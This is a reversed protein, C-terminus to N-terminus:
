NLSAPLPRKAAGARSAATTQSYTALQLNGATEVSFGVPAAFGPTSKIIANLALLQKELARVELPQAAVQRRDDPYATFVWPKWTGPADPLYRIQAVLAASAVTVLLVLAALNRLM